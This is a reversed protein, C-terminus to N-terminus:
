SASGSNRQPQWDATVADFERALAEDRPVSCPGLPQGSLSFCAMDGDESPVAVVLHKTNFLAGIREQGMIRDSAILRRIASMDHSFHLIGTGRVRVHLALGARHHMVAKLQAPVWAGGEVPHGAGAQPDHCHGPDFSMCPVYTSPIKRM